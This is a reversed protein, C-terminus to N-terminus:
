EGIRKAFRGGANRIQRVYFVHYAPDLDLKMRIDKRKPEYDPDNAYRWLTMAPIDMDHGLRHWSGMDEYMRLLDAKSIV